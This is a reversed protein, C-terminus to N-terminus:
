RMAQGAAILFSGASVIAYFGGIAATVANKRPLNAVEM